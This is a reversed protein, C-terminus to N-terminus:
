SRKRKKTTPRTKKTATKKVPNKATKAPRRTAKPKLTKAYAVGLGFYKKLEKTKKLLSDPVLVYEQMVRGHQVSLKTKYKKLFAERDKEALRISVRGDKALFSVMNGNMSTYPMAAGKREVDPNTAVLKEYLQLKAAPAGTAKAM